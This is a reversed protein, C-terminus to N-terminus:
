EGIEVGTKRAIITIVKNQVKNNEKLEVVARDLSKIASKMGMQDSRVYHWIIVGFATIIAGLAGIMYNLMQIEARVAAQIVESTEM